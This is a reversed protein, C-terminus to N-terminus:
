CDDYVRSSEDLGIATIVQKKNARVVRPYIHYKLIDINM